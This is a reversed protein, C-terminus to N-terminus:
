AYLLLMEKYSEITKKCNEVYGKNWFNQAITAELREINTLIEQKTM